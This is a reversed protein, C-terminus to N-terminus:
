QAGLSVNVVMKFDNNKIKIKNKYKQILLLMSFKENMLKDFLM